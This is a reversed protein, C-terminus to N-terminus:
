EKEIRKRKKETRGNMEKITQVEFVVWFLEPHIQGTQVSSPSPATQKKWAVQIGRHAPRLKRKEKREKRRECVCVSEREREDVSRIHSLVARLHQAMTM